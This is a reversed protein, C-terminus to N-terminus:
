FTELPAPRAFFYGQAAECGLNRLLDATERDEVGEAIVGLELARAIEILARAFVADRPSQTARGVHSRDIKIIDVPWAQLHTMGGYGMGFDDLAVKAGRRRLETLNQFVPGSVAGLMTTETVEIVIREWAVGHRNILSQLDFVFEQKVLDATGLNIALTQGDLRPQAALGTLAKDVLHFTLQEALEPARLVSTFQGPTLLGRKPDQWRALLEFGRRAGNGLDVVPQFYPLIENNKLAKQFRPRVLLASFNVHLDPDYTVGATKGAHKDAYLAADAEILLEELSGHGEQRIASGISIHGLSPKGLKAAMRQVDSVCGLMLRELHQQNLSPIEILACFEDGGIRGLVSGGPLARTLARAIEQLYLDGFQHGYVDNVTKFNDVDIMLLALSATSQAIRDMCRAKFAQQNLLGTLGDREALQMLHRARRAENAYDIELVHFAQWSQIAQALIETAHAALEARRALEAGGLLLLAGLPAGDDGTVPLLLAPAADSDTGTVAQVPPRGPILLPANEEIWRLLERRCTEDRGLALTPVRPLHPPLQPRYWAGDVGAAICFALVQELREYLERAAPGM